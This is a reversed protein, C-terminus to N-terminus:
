THAGKDAYAQRRQEILDKIKRQSEERANRLKRRRQTVNHAKIQRRREKHTVGGNLKTDIRNQQNEAQTCSRLNVWRNDMKDNNIHDITDPEENMMMKYALRHAYYSQGNIKIILYGRQVSGAPAGKQARACMTKNWVFTGDWEDYYLVENLYERDPTIVPKPM